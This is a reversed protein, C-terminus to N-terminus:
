MKSTQYANSIVVVNRNKMNISLQLESNSYLIITLLKFGIVINEIM